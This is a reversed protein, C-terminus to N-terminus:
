ILQTRWLSCGMSQVIVIVILLTGASFNIIIVVSYMHFQPSEMKPSIQGINFM